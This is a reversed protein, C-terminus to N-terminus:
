ELGLIGYMSSYPGDGITTGTIGRPDIYHERLRPQQNPDPRYHTINMSRPQAVQMAELTIEPPCLGDTPSSHIQVDIGDLLGPSIGRGMGEIIELRRVAIYKEGGPKSARLEEMAIDLAEKTPRVV